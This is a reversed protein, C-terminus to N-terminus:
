RDVVELRKFSKVVNKMLPENSQKELALWKLPYDPPLPEGSLRHIDEWIMVGLLCEEVM